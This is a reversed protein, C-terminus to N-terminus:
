GKNLASIGSFEGAETDVLLFEQTGIPRGNHYTSFVDCSIVSGAKEIRDVPTHGVVQLLDDPQWLKMYSYQPRHWIPSIDKWLEDHGLANIASVVADADKKQRVKAPVYDEVFVETLGGHLFLVEDIRHVYAMQGRDPLTQELERLKQRVLSGALMSYGSEPEQWVYSLDHNGWCWLTDPHDKAFRIAADYTGRYLELDFEHDWDDAIDMLCVARDAPVERLIRDAAEFIWPKLHIDPIVLVKMTM